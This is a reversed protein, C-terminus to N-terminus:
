SNDSIWKVAAEFRTDIGYNGDVAVAGESPEIGKSEFSRYSGDQSLLLTEFTTTYVGLNKSSFPGSHYTDRNVISCTAGYTTSGVSAGNKMVNKAISASLEACSVSNGNAIVVFPKDYDKEAKCYSSEITLDIWPGYEYRSYGGKYRTIGFKTEKSLFSGFITELTSNDGGGNSRVDMIVGAIEYETEAGSSSLMTCKGSKGISELITFMNYVGEIYKLRSSLDYETKDWIARYLKQEEESMTELEDDTLGERYLLSNSIPTNRYSIFSSFYFYFINDETVGYFYSFDGLGLAEVISSWMKEGKEEAEDNTIFRYGYEAKFSSTNHFNGWGGDEPSGEGILNKVENYGEIAEDYFSSTDGTEASIKNKEDVSMIYSPNSRVWIVDPFSIHDNGTREEWKRETSPSMWLTNGFNDRVTLKYHYDDIRIAIEKFYRFATLSDNIDSYDLARFLPIYKEYIEDWDLDDEIDFHVYEMNMTNWFQLFVNEWSDDPAVADVTCATFLILVMVIVILTLKRRM